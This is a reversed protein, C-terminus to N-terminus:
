LKCEKTQKTMKTASIVCGGRLVVVAGSGHLYQSVHKETERNELIPVMCTEKMRGIFKNACEQGFQLWHKFLM